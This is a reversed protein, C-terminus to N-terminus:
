EEGAAIEAQRELRRRKIQRPLWGGARRGAVIWYAIGGLMGAVITIAFFELSPGRDQQPNLVVFGLCLIAIFGGSLCYFLWDRRSRIEAFLVIFMAPLMAAYATISAVALVGIMMGTLTATNGIARVDAPTILQTMMALAAGTVICAVFFGFAM